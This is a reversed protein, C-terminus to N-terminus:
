NDIYSMIKAAREEWSFQRAFNISELYGEVKRPYTKLTHQISEALAKPNDPECWDAIMPSSKFPMLPTIETTVIPTGAAMYQFFKVPNTFEAAQGACHPHALVDAAQLLSVLRSRPLIWGLFNVNEVQKDKALQQYSKVEEDTGGTLAFQVQPLFKAADILVEIGKFRRLAGSYVVLHECGNALLEKRWAEADEPQREIFARDFGNHMWIAKEPPIGAQIASQRIPESQTIVVKLFPNNAIEPEFPTKQFYHREYITPVKNKVAAKVFNWDRTHIAQTSPLIHFPFYYKCIVTSSNTWKGGFRDIPWPKPLPAVKLRDQVNYFEVFKSDPKRPRFPTLLELPNVFSQSPDPYVLVSSYGLNAAADACLVDHIEHATGPKFSLKNSYVIYHKSM